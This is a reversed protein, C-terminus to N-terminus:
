LNKQHCVSRVVAFGEETKTWNEYFIFLLCHDPVLVIFDRLGGEFKPINDIIYKIATM